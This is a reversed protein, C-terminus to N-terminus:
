FVCQWISSYRVLPDHRVQLILKTDQTVATIIKSGRELNRANEEPNQGALLSALGVLTPPVFSTKLHYEYCFITFIGGM